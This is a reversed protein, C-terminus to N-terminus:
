LQKEKHKKKKKKSHQNYLIVSLLVFIGVFWECRDVVANIQLSDMHVPILINLLKNYRLLLLTCFFVFLV